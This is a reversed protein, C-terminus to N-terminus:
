ICSIFANEIRQENEKPRLICCAGFGYAATVMLGGKDNIYDSTFWLEKSSELVSNYEDGPKVSNCFKVVQPESVMFVASFSVLLIIPSALLVILVIAVFKSLSM